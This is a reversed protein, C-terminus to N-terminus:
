PIRSVMEIRRSEHQWRNLQTSLFELWVSIIDEIFHTIWEWGPTSIENKKRKTPNLRLLYHCKLAWIHLIFKDYMYNNLIGWRCNGYGFMWNISLCRMELCTRGPLSDQYKMGTLSETGLNYAQVDLHNGLSYYTITTTWNSFVSKPKALFRWKWKSRSNNTSKWGNGYDSLFM